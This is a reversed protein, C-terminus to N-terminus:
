SKLGLGNRVRSIDVCDSLAIESESSLILIGFTRLAISAFSGLLGQRLKNRTTEWPAATLGWDQM